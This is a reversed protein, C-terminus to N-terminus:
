SLLDTSTIGDRAVCTGRIIKQGDLIDM